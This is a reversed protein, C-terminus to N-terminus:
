GLPERLTRVGRTELPYTKRFMAVGNPEKDVARWTAAGLV